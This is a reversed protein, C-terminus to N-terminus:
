TSSLAPLAGNRCFNVQPRYYLATAAVLIWFVGANPYRSKAACDISSAGPGPLPNDPAISFVRSRAEAKIGSRITVIFKLRKKGGVITRSRKCVAAHRA